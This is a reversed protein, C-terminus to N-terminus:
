ALRPTENKVIKTRLVTASPVTPFLAAIAPSPVIVVSQGDTSFAQVKWETQGTNPLVDQVIVTDGVKVRRYQYLALAALGLGGVIHLTSFHM